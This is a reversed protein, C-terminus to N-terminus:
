KNSLLREIVRTLVTETLAEDDIMDVGLDEDQRNGAKKNKFGKYHGGKGYRGGGVDGRKKRVGQANTRRLDDDANGSWNPDRSEEIEVEEEGVDEIGVEEVDMDPAELEDDAVVDLVEEGALEELKAGLAGALEAAIEQAIEPDLSPAADGMESDDARELDGEAYDEEDHAKHMDDAAEEEEEGIDEETLNDLWSETLAPMNALKGWRRVINENVLTKKKTM